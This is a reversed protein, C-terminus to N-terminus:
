IGQGFYPFAAFVLWGFLLLMFLVAKPSTFRHRWAIWAGFLALNIVLNIASVVVVYLLGEHAYGDAARTAIYVANAIALSTTVVATCSLRGRYPRVVFRAAVIAFLAPILLLSFARPAGASIPLFLAAPYPSWARPVPASVSLYGIAYLTIVGAALYGCSRMSEAM